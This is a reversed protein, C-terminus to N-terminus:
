GQTWDKATSLRQKYCCLLLYNSMQYQILGIDEHKLVTEHSIHCFRLELTELFLTQQTRPALCFVGYVVHFGHSTESRM